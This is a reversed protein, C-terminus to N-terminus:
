GVSVTGRENPDGTDTTDDDDLASSPLFALFPPMERPDLTVAVFAPGGAATTTEALVKRLEDVTAATGAPLEPFMAAVGAGLDARTGFENYTYADAYFLQERTVCMGHANNNLIVFTVPLRHEVATHVELGHMYFAGDGAVVYTRQGTAFAAGLGAGFSYGMGGMGLAVVLRGARPAPIHHIASAGTNGADVFLHADEPMEAAIAEVTTRHTLGYPGAPPAADIALPRPGAHPPCPLDGGPLADALAALETRLDGTINTVDDVGPVPYAPEPDVCVLPKGALVDELGARAMHPLRTGVLVCLAARRLCRRVNPHGMVGTVGAFRPDANAYADKADPVVAVWAGLAGALRALEAGAGARVVGDGAIVLVGKGAAAALTAAARDRAAPDGPVAPAVPTFPPPAPDLVAQQVDKPILLVAPGPAGTAAGYAAAVARPLLEAIAAPDDVRACFHTIASFLRHADMSGALGSSDQFAGRGHLASPAQGVIGLVPVRSAYSEAIGTALNMMGGGSTSVVVGLRNSTRGYGDAMTAASFEHKAVVGAVRGGSAHLADYLDEINAGGVGFVHGVGLRALADVIYDVVRVPRDSLV